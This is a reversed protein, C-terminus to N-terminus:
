KYTYSRRGKNAGTTDGEGAKDRFALNGKGAASRSSISDFIGADRM